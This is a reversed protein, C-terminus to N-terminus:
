GLFVSTSMTNEEATVHCLGQLTTRSALFFISPTGHASRRLHVTPLGSGFGVMVSAAGGGATGASEAVSGGAFFRRRLPLVLSAAKAAAAEGEAGGREGADTAELALAAGENNAM